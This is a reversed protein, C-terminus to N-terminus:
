VLDLPSPLCIPLYSLATTTIFRHRTPLTVLQEEKRGRQKKLCMEDVLLSSKMKMESKM